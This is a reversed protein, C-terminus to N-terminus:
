ADRVFVDRHLAIGLTSGLTMPGQDQFVGAPGREVIPCSARDRQMKTRQYAGMRPRFYHKKLRDVEQLLVFGLNRTGVRQGRQDKLRHPPMLALQDLPDAFRQGALALPGQVSQELFSRCSGLVRHDLARPQRQEFAKGM